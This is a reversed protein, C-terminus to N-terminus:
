RRTQIAGRYPTALSPPSAAAHQLFQVLDVPREIPVPVNPQRCFIKQAFAFAIRPDSSQNPELVALIMQRVLRPSPHRLIGLALATGCIDIRLSHRRPPARSFFIHPKFAAGLNRLRGCCPPPLTASSPALKSGPWVTILRAPTQEELRALGRSHGDIMKRRDAARQNGDGVLRSQGLQASGEGGRIDLDNGGAAGGRRERLAPIATTSTACSM